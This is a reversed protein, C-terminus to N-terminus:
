YWELAARMRTLLNHLQTLDVRRGQQVKVHLAHLREIDERSVSSQSRLWDWLPAGDAVLGLRKRAENFFNAILQQGAAAPRVVRAMFGGTARVFGSLDVPNWRSWAPRLRQSGIVFLLWLGFLWWLTAHLRSDGFFAEPDYFSVLGQHADDIIVKGGDRLSWRVVNALLRANDDDGLKKNALISGYASVIFQGQGLPLLWLVAAGSDPDHALELMGTEEFWGDWKSTFYESVASVKTVGELLPHPGSPQMQFHLPEKLPSRAEIASIASAPRNAPSSAQKAEPKPDADSEARESRADSRPESRTESHQEAHSESLSESEDESRSGSRAGSGAESQSEGQVEPQSGLAPSDEQSVTFTMRTIARLRELFRPDGGDAMSWDPTDSLGAIVWLTNGQSVWRRLPQVESNRTPYLHPMTSILLNGQPSELGPVEHLKGFRERLSLVPVGEGHLWRVLGLYGNPGAEVSTPRTPKEEQVSPKPVMLVYVAVFAGLAFALTLLRDRM